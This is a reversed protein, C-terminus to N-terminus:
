PCINGAKGSRKPVGAGTEGYIVRFVGLVGPGCSGPTMPELGPLTRRVHAAPMTAM